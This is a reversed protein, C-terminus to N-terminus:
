SSVGKNHKNSEKSEKMKGNSISNDLKGLFIIPEKKEIIKLKLIFFLFYLLNFVLLIIFILSFLPEFVMVNTIILILNMGVSIPIKYNDNKIFIIVVMLIILIIFLVFFGILSFNEFNQSM